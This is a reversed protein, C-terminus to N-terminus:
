RAGGAFMAEARSDLLGAVHSRLYGDDVVRLEPPTRNDFWADVHAKDWRAHVWVADAGDLLEGRYIRPTVPPPFKAKAVWKRIRKVIAGTTLEAPLKARRAIYVLGVGQDARRAELLQHVSM